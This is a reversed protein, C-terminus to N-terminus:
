TIALPKFKVIFPVEEKFITHFVEAISPHEASATQIGKVVFALVDEAFALVEVVFALVEEVFALAM